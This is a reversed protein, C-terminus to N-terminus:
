RSAAFIVKECYLSLNGNHTCMCAPLAPCNCSLVSIYTYIYMCVYMCVYM